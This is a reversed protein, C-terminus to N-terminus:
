NSVTVCAAAWLGLTVARNGAFSIPCSLSTILSGNHRESALLGFCICAEVTRIPPAGEAPEYNQSIAKHEQVGQELMSPPSAGGLDILESTGPSTVKGPM